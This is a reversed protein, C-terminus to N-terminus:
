HVTERLREFPLLSGGHFTIPDSPRRRGSSLDEGILRAWPDMPQYHPAGRGLVHTDYGYYNAKTSQGSVSEHMGVHAMDTRFLDMIAHMVRDWGDPEVAAAYLRDLFHDIEAESAKPM